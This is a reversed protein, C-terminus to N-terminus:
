PKYMFQELFLITEEQVKEKAYNLDGLSLMGVLQGDDVVPIHRIRRERLLNRITDSSTKSTCCYVKGTMVERVKVEAPDLEKVVVRRMLDRETFIGVVRDGDVVVLAGITKEDMLRAADLV